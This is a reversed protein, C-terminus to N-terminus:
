EGPNQLIASRVNQTMKYKGIKALSKNKKQCLNSAELYTATEKAVYYINEDKLHESNTFSESFSREYNLYVLLLLTGALLSKSM